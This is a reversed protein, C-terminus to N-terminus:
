ASQMLRHVRHLPSILMLMLQRAKGHRGKGVSCRVAYPVTDRELRSIQEHLAEARLLLVAHPIMLGKNGTWDACFVM